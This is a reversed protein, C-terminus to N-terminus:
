PRRGVLFYAVFGFPVFLVVLGWLVRSDGVVQQDTRQFISVLAAILGVFYVASLLLAFAFLSRFTEAFEAPGGVEPGFGVAAEGASEMTGTLAM